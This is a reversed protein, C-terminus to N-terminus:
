DDPHCPSRGHDWRAHAGAGIAFIATCVVLSAPSTAGGVLMFRGVPDTHVLMTSALAYAVVLVVVVEHDVVFALLLGAGLCFLLGQLATELTGPRDIVRGGPLLSVYSAAGLLLLVALRLPALARSARREWQDLRSRVTALVVLAVACPAVAYLVIPAYRPDDPQAGPVRVATVAPLAVGFLCMLGVGWGLRRSAAFAVAGTRM